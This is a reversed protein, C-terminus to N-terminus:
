YLLRSAFRRQPKIGFERCNAHENRLKVEIVDDGGSRQLLAKSKLIPAGLLADGHFVEGNRSPVASRQFQADIAWRFSVVVEWGEEVNMASGEHETAEGCFVFPALLVRKVRPAHHDSDVVSQSRLM